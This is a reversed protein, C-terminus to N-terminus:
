RYQLGGYSKVPEQVKYGCDKWASLEAESFRDRFSIDTRFSELDNLYMVFPLVILQLPDDPLLITPVDVIRGPEIITKGDNGTFVSSLYMSVTDNSISVPHFTLYTKFITDQVSLFREINKVSKYAKFIFEQSLEPQGSLPACTCMVLFFTVIWVQIYNLLKMKNCNLFM